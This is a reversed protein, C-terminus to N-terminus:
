RVRVLTPKEYSRPMAGYWENLHGELVWPPFQSVCHLGVIQHYTKKGDRTRAPYVQGILKDQPAGEFSEGDHAALTYRGSKYGISGVVHITLDSAYAKIDSSDGCLLAERSRPLVAGPSFRLVQVLIVL